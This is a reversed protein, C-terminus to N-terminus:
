SVLCSGWCRTQMKLVARVASYSMLSPSHVLNTLNNTKLSWVLIADLTGKDIAADFSHTELEPLQTVDGVRGLLLSTLSVLTLRDRLVSSLLPLSFLSHACDMEPHKKQMRDIVVPSIDINIISKVGYGDQVMHESMGEPVACDRLGWSFRFSQLTSCTSSNGCGVMLIREMSKPTIENLIHKLTDYRQYWDFQEDDKKYRHDWYQLTSIEAFFIQLITTGAFFFNTLTYREDRAM